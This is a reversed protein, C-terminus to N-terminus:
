CCDLSHCIISLNSKEKSITSRSGDVLDIQELSCFAAAVTRTGQNRLPVPLSFEALSSRIKNLYRTLYADICTEISACVSPYQGQFRITLLDGNLNSTDGQCSESYVFFAYKNGFSYICLYDEIIGTDDDDDSSIKIQLSVRARVRFLIQRSDM